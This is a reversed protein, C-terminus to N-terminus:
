SKPLKNLCNVACERAIYGGLSWGIIVVPSGLEQSRQKVRAIAKECLM